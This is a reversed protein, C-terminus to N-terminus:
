YLQHRLDDNRRELWYIEQELERIERHSGYRRDLRYIRKELKRIRKENRSIERAIHREQHRDYQTYRHHHDRAQIQGILATFIGGRGTRSPDKRRHRAQLDLTSVMFLGIISAIILTRKMKIGGGDDLLTTAL